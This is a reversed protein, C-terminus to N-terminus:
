CQGYLLTLAIGSPFKSEFTFKIKFLMNNNRLITIQFFTIQYSKLGKMVPKQIIVAETM